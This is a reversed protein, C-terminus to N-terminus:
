DRAAPYQPGHQFKERLVIRHWFVVHGLLILTGIVIDALVFEDLSDLSLCLFALRFGLRLFLNQLDVSMYILLMSVTPFWHLPVRYDRGSRDSVM